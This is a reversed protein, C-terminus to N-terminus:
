RQADGIGNVGDEVLRDVLRDLDLQQVPVGSRFAQGAATGCAQGMIMCQSMGRVSAFAMPDVSILRGAFLVNSVDVPVMCRFPITYYRGKAAVADHTMVNDGRFVDDLPNDCAVIGDAFKASNQLDAITLRYQGEFRRTERVGVSPGLYTLRANEFGPVEERLYSALQFCRHRAQSTAATISQQDRGDVGGIVVSNFFVADDHFAKMIYLKHLDPHLRGAAIGRAAIDTLYPDPNADFVKHCDVHDMIFSLTAGMTNGSEDGVEFPVGAAKALQGDGTCDIFFKAGVTLPEAKSWCTIAEVRGNEVVTDVVSTNLLLRVGAEELLDYLTAIAIEHDYVIEPGFEVLSCDRKEAAPPKMSYLRQAFEELIGGVSFGCPYAAGIPMGPCISMVGGIKLSSEILVTSLGSRAAAIAAGIGAVGAGAVAVDAEIAPPKPLESM